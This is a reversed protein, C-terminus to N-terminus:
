TALACRQLKLLGKSNHRHDHGIVVGRSIADKVSKLVYVALGQSAQLVTVENMGSFGAQM